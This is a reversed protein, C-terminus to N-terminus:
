GEPGNNTELKKLGATFKPPNAMRLRGKKQKLNGDVTM